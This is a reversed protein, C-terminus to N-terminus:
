LTFDLGAISKRGGWSMDGGNLFSAIRFKSSREGFFKPLTNM